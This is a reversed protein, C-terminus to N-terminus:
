RSNDLTVTAYFDGYLNDIQEVESTDCGFGAADDSLNKAVNEANSQDRGVIGVRAGQDLLVKAIGYGIGKTSGLVLASKGKLSLDM